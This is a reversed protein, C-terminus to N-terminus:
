KAMSKSVYAPQIFHSLLNTFHSTITVVISVHFCLLVFYVVFYVVCFIDLSSPSAGVGLKCRPSTGMSRSMKM